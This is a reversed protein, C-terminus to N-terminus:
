LERVTIRDVGPAGKNRRVRDYERQLNPRNLAASILDISEEHIHDTAATANATADVQERLYQERRETTLAQIEAPKEVARTTM